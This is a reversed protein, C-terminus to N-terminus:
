CPWNKTATKFKDSKSWDVRDVSVPGVQKLTSDWLAMMLVPDAGPDVLEYLYGVTYM